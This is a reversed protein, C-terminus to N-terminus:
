RRKFYKKMEGEEKEELDRTGVKNEKSAKDHRM